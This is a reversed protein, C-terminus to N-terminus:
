LLQLRANLFIILFDCVENINQCEQNSIMKSNIAENNKIYYKENNKEVYIQYEHFGCPLLDEYFLLVLVVEIKNKESKYIQFIKNKNKRLYISVEDGNKVM